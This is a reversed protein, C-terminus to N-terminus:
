TSQNRMVIHFSWSPCAPGFSVVEADAWAVPGTREFWMLHGLRPWGLIDVMFETPDKEWRHATRDTNMGRTFRTDPIVMALHGGPKLLRLWERIAARPDPLHELLHSNFVYDFTADPFPLRTADAVCDPEYDAFCDVRLTDDRVTRTGAGPDIGNGTCYPFVSAVEASWMPCPQKPTGDYYTLEVM